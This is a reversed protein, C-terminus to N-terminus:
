FIPSSAFTAILFILRSAPSSKFFTSFTKSSSPVSGYQPSLLQCFSFIYAISNQITGESGQCVSNKKKINYIINFTVKWKYNNYFM